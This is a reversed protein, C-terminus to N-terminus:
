VVARCLKWGEDLMQRSIAMLYWPEVVTGERVYKQKDKDYEWAWWEVELGRAWTARCPVLKPTDIM